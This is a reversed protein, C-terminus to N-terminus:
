QLREESADWEICEDFRGASIENAISAIDGSTVRDRELRPVVARVRAHARAVAKSPKLPARFDIGQAGCMLEIALVNRLNAIVRRAKWAAGMAMPVVDEKSGDTPISDVSSPHALVKCESTISAATVQAMMFGSNTGADPSLFAPLGENLDPHVLRDTRRESIVALNTAIIALFDLAMAVAQGHFNGGSLMEGSDFVLPNDTAANLERTVMGDIWRLADLVPGHVQPICRLGYADQVRRDNTRHSERIESDALLLRMLRASEAQGIQGRADQIRADFAVPTGKLAELSMAAAVHAARWLRHTEHVLLAAVATHAQTGNILTIGEKPGLEVPELKSARLMEAAPGSEPGRFLVGEGILSLALHALPALDGSAGVSGQEPVPPFLGANLMGVLLDVLVDRAGSFGKSIVNARLLMMARVEPESFLPGVGVSHSRILNVQLEALRDPPIAIDSLKGFGTTVGYVVDNREVIRNVIANSAAMRARAADSVGVRARDRAVAVVDEIRLSRGDLTILGTTESM